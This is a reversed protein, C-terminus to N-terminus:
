IRNPNMYPKKDISYKPYFNFLRYMYDKLDKILSYKLANFFQWLIMRLVYNM